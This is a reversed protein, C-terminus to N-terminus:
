GRLLDAPNARAARRAPLFSAVTGTVMIVGAVAVYTAPDWPSTAFVVGLLTPAWAAAAALGVVLGVVLTKVEGRCMLAVLQRRNAGFASRIALERRRRSASFAAMGYVGIVCLVVAIGGFVQLLWVNTRRPALTLSVIEELTRVTSTAIDSDVNQVAQRIAPSLTKPDINTRVVWYMRAALTSAQGAPMQHIPVYLDATPVADVDFQKVDGVVGVVELPTSPRDLVIQVHKGVAPQGPWHRDAFTRSVIVVPDGRSTDSEVFPRGAIVTIGAAAFYDASAIRFHAQPVEDPPPAPRDPFAVDVTSLLGSLPLLSVIGANRTGPIALL